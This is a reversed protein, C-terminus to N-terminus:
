DIDDTLEEVLNGKTNAEILRKEKQVEPLRAMDEVKSEINKPEIGISNKEETKDNEEKQREIVADDLKIYKMIEERYEEGLNDCLSDILRIAREQNVEGNKIKDLFKISNRIQREKIAAEKRAKEADLGNNEEQPEEKRKQLEALEEKFEEIAKSTTNVALVEKAAGLGEKGFEETHEVVYNIVEKNEKSVEKIFEPSNKLEENANSLMNVDEKIASRMFEPNNALEPNDALVESINCERVAYMIAEKNGTECLEEIFEGDKKLDDSIYMIIEPNYPVLYLVITDTDTIVTKKLVEPENVVIETAITLDQLKLGDGYYTYVEYTAYKSNKFAYLLPEMFFKNNRLSLDINNLSILKGSEIQTLLGEDYVQKGDKYKAERLHDFSVSTKDYAFYITEM